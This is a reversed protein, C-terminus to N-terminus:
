DSGKANNQKRFWVLGFVCSAIGVFAIPLGYGLLTVGMQWNEAPGVDALIGLLGLVAFGLPLLSIGSVVLGFVILILRVPHM